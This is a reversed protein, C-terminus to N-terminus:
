ADAVLERWRYDPEPGVLVLLDRDGVRARRLVLEPWTLEALRGDVIELPPRRARYDFLADADFTAVVPAEDAVQELATTAASAPTWGATSPPSCPRPSSTAPTTSAFLSM